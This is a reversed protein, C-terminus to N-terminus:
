NQHDSFKTVAAMLWILLHPRELVKMRLAKLATHKTNAVTQPSLGMTEAIEGVSKGELYSLKFIRRSQVPLKEIESYIFHLVETEIDSEGFMPFEAADERPLDDWGAIQLHKQKQSRLFSIAANKATIFLFAQIKAGTSFNEHRHYLKIFTDSTIEEASLRDRVINNVFHFIRMRYYDFVSNFAGPYGRNFGSLLENSFEM